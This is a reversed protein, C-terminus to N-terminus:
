EHMAGARHRSRVVGGPAHVPPRRERHDPRCPRRIPPHAIRELAFTVLIIEAARMTNTTAYAPGVDTRPWSGGPEVGGAAEVSASEVFSSVGCRQNTSSALGGATSPVLGAVKRCSFSAKRAAAARPPTRCM